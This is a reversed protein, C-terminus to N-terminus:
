LWNSGLGSLFGFKVCLIWVSSCVIRCSFLVFCISGVLGVSIDVMMFDSLGFLAGPGSWIDFLIRLFRGGCEM